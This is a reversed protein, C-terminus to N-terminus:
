YSTNREGWLGGRAQHLGVVEHLHLSRGVTHRRHVRDQGPPPSSSQGAAMVKTNCLLLQESPIQTALSM